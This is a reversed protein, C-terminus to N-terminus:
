QAPHPVKRGSVKKFKKKKGWVHLSMGQVWGLLECGELSVRRLPSLRTSVPIVEGQLWYREVAAARRRRSLSNRGFSSLKLRFLKLIEQRFLSIKASVPTIEASISYKPRFPTNHGFNDKPRFASKQRFIEAGVLVSVKARFGFPLGKPQGSGTDSYAPAQIFM